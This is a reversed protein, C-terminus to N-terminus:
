CERSAPAVRRRELTLWAHLSEWLPGALAQRQALRQAPLLDRLEREIRYIAAIRQVAEAAVPSGKDKLLEDYKRRAHALCGAAQRDHLATM